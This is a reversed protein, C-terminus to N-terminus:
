WDDTSEPISQYQPLLQGQNDTFGAEHLFQKAATADGALAREMLSPAELTDALDELTRAPVAYWSEM